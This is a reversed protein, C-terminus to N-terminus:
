KVTKIFQVLDVEVFIHITYIINHCDNFCWITINKTTEWSWFYFFTVFLWCTCDWEDKGKVWWIGNFVKSQILLFFQIQFTEIPIFVEEHKSISFDSPSKPLSFDVAVESDIISVILGFSFIYWSEKLLTTGPFCCDYSQVKIFNLKFM